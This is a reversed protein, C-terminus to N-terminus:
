HHHLQCLAHRRARAQPVAAHAARARVVFDVLSGVIRVTSGGDPGLAILSYLGDQAKFAEYAARASPRIGVGCVGWNLCDPETDACHLLQDAYCALHSRHFVGVGFHLIGARVRRRDYDPLVLRMGPPRTCAPDLMSDYSFGSSSASSATPM